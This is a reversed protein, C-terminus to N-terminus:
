KAIGLKSRRHFVASLTRRTRRAAEAPALSRLLRDEWEAWSKNLWPPRIGRQKHVESMKRRHEASLPRGINAKRLAEIVEPPRPKGRRSAGIKARRDPDQAKAHMAALAPRNAKGKGHAVRRATTGENNYPVALAKRWRRVANAGVGWWHRIAVVSERRVARALDRYLVLSKTRKTQGIPWPIRGASLGVIRVEGRREDEVRQGYRFTPTRYTGLLKYHASSM